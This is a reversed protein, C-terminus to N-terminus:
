GNRRRLIVQNTFRLDLSGDIELLAPSEERVAELLSLSHRWNEPHLYISPGAGRLHMQPQSGWTVCDVEAYMGPHQQRMYCLADCAEEIALYPSIGIANRQDLVPLDLRKGSGPLPLLKGDATLCQVRQEDSFWAIAQQECVRVHLRHPYM